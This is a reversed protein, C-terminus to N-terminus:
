HCLSDIMAVDQYQYRVPQFFRCFTLRRKKLFTMRQMKNRKLSKKPILFSVRSSLFCVTHLCRQEHSSLPNDTTPLSIILFLLFVVIHCTGAAFCYFAGTIFPQFRPFTDLQSICQCFYHMFLLYFTQSSAATSLFFLFLKYM